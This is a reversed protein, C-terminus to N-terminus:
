LEIRRLPMMRGRNLHLKYTVSFIEPNWCDRCTGCHGKIKKWNKSPVNLLPSDKTHAMCTYKTESVGSVQVGLQRALEVPPTGEV